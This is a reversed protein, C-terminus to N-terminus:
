GSESEDPHGALLLLGHRLRLGAMTVVKLELKCPPASLTHLEFTLSQGKPESRAARPVGSRPRRPPRPPGCLVEVFEIPEDLRVGRGDPAIGSARARLLMVRRDSLIMLSREGGAALSLIIAAPHGIGPVISLGIQVAAQSATTPPGVIGWGILREGPLRRSRWLRRLGIPGYSAYQFRPRCM